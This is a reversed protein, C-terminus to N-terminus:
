DLMGESPSSPVGVERRPMRGALFAARGAEVALRMAHAMTVPDRAAALATNMLIGDVGQEM